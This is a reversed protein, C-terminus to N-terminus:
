DTFKFLMHVESSLHKKDMEAQMVDILPAFMKTWDALMRKTEIQKNLHVTICRFLDVMDTGFWWAAVQQMAFEKAMWQLSGETYLHTHGNSLHRQMVVPFVMEFFVCPSFMPVSIYLFRVNKNNKLADLIDRPNQLHELVGILSVIDSDVSAALDVTEHMFLVTLHSERM